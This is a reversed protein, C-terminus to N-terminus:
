CFVYKKKINEPISNKIEIREQFIIENRKCCSCLEPIKENKELAIQIRLIGIPGNCKKCSYVKTGNGNGNKGSGKKM